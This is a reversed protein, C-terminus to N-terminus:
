WLSAASGRQSIKEHTGSRRDKSRVLGPDSSYILIKGNADLTYIEYTSGLLMLSHFTDALEVQNIPGAKLLSNDGIMRSALDHYLSQQVLNSYNENNSDALKLLLSSAMLFLAVVLSVLCGFLSSIM